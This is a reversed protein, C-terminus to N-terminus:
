FNMSIIDENRSGVIEMTKGIIDNVVHEGLGVDIDDM